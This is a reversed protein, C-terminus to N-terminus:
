SAYYKKLFMATNDESAIVKRLRQINAEIKDVYFNPGDPYPRCLYRQPAGLDRDLKPKVYKDWFNPTKLLLDRASTFMSVFDSTPPAHRVAEAFEAYLVPLKEIYDDAAMQGVLDAAGLIYGTIKEEESQFPTVKLMADVGTCGIMNQVSAIEKETFGNQELLEAAFEASRAVHIVTYKAGTGATDGHKKLYGTDHLLIALLGLEVMRRPLVPQAGAFHRGHLMRAMCLTVQLTHEFDHYRADIAQYDAYKGTFCDGAWRFIKPVFDKDADPFMELFASRVASEVAAPDSTAVPSYM